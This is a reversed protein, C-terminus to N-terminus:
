MFGRVNATACKLNFSLSKDAACLSLLPRCHTVKRQERWKRKRTDQSIFWEKKVHSLSRFSRFLTKREKKKEPVSAREIRKNSYIDATSCKLYLLAEGFLTM